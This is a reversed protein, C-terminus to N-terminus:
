RRGTGAPSHDALIGPDACCVPCSGGHGVDVSGRLERPQEPQGFGGRLLGGDDGCRQTGPQHHGPGAGALALGHGGPHHPQDGVPVHAGLVHEAEGEGALGGGFEGFADAFPEVLQAARARHGVLHEVAFGGDGGVVGVGDAQDAVVRQALGHFRVGAQDGRGHGPLEGVAHDAGVVPRHVRDGGGGGGHDAVDEGQGPFEGFVQAGGVVHALEAGPQTRAGRAQLLDGGGDAVQEGGLVVALLQERQQLPEGLELRVALHHVVVVLDRQGGADRLAVGLDAQDFAAAVLHHQEVLVLVGAVGLEHQQPRQESVAVRDGRDAVGALGDVAPAAGARAVQDAEGGVERLPGAPGRRDALQGGAEAVAFPHQLDGLADGLRQAGLGLVDGHEVRPRRADAPAPDGAGQQAGLGLLGGPDGLLDVQRQPLRRVPVGRGVAQGPGFLLGPPREAVAVDRHQAAFAGLEGHDAVRQLLAADGDLDDPQAPEDLHGLHAVDDGGQPHQVVGGGPVFEGPQEGPRAPPQPRAVQDREVLAGHLQGPLGAAVQAARGRLLGLLLGVRQPPGHQVQGGLRSAEDVREVVEAGGFAVGLRAVPPQAGEGLLQPRQAALDGLRQGVQDGLHLPDEAEVHLHACPGAPVLGGGAGVQVREHVGRHAEGAGGVRGGQVREEGVQVGGLVGLVAQGGALPDTGAVGDFEHRHVGGLPQLPRHHDHGPEALALEGPDGSGHLAPGALGRFQRERQAAVPRAQGVQRVHGGLVELAEGRGFAVALQHLLAAEGVHRHGAGRERQQAGPVPPPPLGLASAAGRDEQLLHPLHALRARAADCQPGVRGAVVLVVGFQDLVGGHDPRRVPVGAAVGGCPGGVQHRAVPVPGPFPLQAQQVAGHQPRRRAAPDAVPRAVHLQQQAVAGGFRVVPPGDLHLQGGVQGHGRQHRQGAVGGRQGPLDATRQRPRRRRVGAPAGGEVGPQFPAEALLAQDVGVFQGAGGVVGHVDVGVQLLQLAPELLALPGVTGRQVHLDGELGADAVPQHPAPHVRDEVVRLVVDVVHHVPLGPLRGGRGPLAARHGHLQGGVPHGPGPDGVHGQVPHAGGEVVDAM